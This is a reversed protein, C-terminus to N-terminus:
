QSAAPCEIPLVIEIILGGDDANRATITGKHMRIAAESIALGLGAGAHREDGDAIKYFPKFILSLAEEQVGRGHDRVTIQASSKGELITVASSIEVISEEPTHYLANRIINEIARRLLDHNGTLVISENLRIVARRNNTEYNADEIIGEVLKSLDFKTKQIKITEADMKNYTLVQDILDNLRQTELAMRDLHKQAQEGAHQRCLELAINLRALPSRLEHSVDRLLHRQSTLLKEIREAMIDFDNALSSIEGGRGKLTPWVRVSLQGDALQRAASGLKYIPATLYRALLYCFIGTILLGIM